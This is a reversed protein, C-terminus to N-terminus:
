SSYLYLHARDDSIVPYDTAIFGRQAYPPDYEPELLSEFVYNHVQTAGQDSSTYPNFNEPDSLAHRVMWDGFMPEDAGAYKLSGKMTGDLVITDKTESLVTQVSNWPDDTTEEGGCALQTALLVLVFVRATSCITTRM